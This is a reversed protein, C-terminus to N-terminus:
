KVEALEGQPIWAKQVHIYKAAFKVLIAKGNPASKVTERVSGRSGETGSTSAFSVTGDPMLWDSSSYAMDISGDFGGGTYADAIRQAGQCDTDGTYRCSISCGGSYRQTKVSWKVLPFADSLAAKVLKAQDVLSVYADGNVNSTLLEKYIEAGVKQLKTTM